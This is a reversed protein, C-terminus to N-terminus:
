SLSLGLNPIERESIVSREGFSSSDGEWLHCIERGSVVSIDSETKVIKQNKLRQEGVKM